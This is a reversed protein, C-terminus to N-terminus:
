VNANASPSSKVVGRSPQPSIGLAWEAIRPWLWAGVQRRFYGMHGISRFGLTKPNLTELTLSANTYHSLFAQASAPTAWTDDVSNTGKVDVRVDSFAQQMQHEQDDFWYNPFRCWHRWQEYVGKPLDEGLGLSKAPLYGARAVALPGLVNWFALVKPWETWPMYGHWGAGTAFTWLGQTLNAVGTLPFAHGGFSHGVVWTPALTLAHDLVAGFDLQAWDLYDAEFGKLSGPRRSDGIGRYDFTIVGLGRSALYEAFAQYFRQPVATAGGLVVVGKTFEGFRTVGLPYGDRSKLTLATKQTLSDTLVM